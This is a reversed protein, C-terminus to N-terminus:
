RDITEKLIQEIAHVVESAAPRLSPEAQWCDAIVKSLEQPYQLQRLDPRDGCRIREKVERSRLKTFFSERTALVRFIVSAMSFIDAKESFVGVFQEPAGYQSGEWFAPCREGRALRSMGVYRSSDLDALVLSGDGLLLLQNSHLDSHAVRLSHLQEISRAVDLSLELKRKQSLYSHYALSELDTVALDTVIVNDCFGRINEINPKKRLTQLLRAEHVQCSASNEEPSSSPICGKRIKIAYLRSKWLAKYVIKQSGSGVVVGVKLEQINSCNIDFLSPQLPELIADAECGTEKTIFDTLRAKAVCIGSGEVTMLACDGSCLYKSGGPSVTRPCEACTQARRLGCNVDTRKAQWGIKLMKARWEAFSLWCPDTKDVCSGRCVRCDEDCTHDSLKEDGQVCNACSSAEHDGCDVPHEGESDRERDYFFDRAPDNNCILCPADTSVPARSPHPFSQNGLSVSASTAGVIFITVLKWVVAM